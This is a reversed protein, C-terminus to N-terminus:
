RQAFGDGFRQAIEPLPTSDFEHELLIPDGLASSDLPADASNLQALLQEADSALNPLHLAPDLYVHRFTLAPPTRFDDPHERLFAELEAATPEALSAVDNTLFELKQRLRRRIVTDDRDLGMAMAERCYVEERVDDRVLGALEEPSPPRQWTRTFGSALQEIRGQTVVIRNPEVVGAGRDAIRYVLFLGAGLLLFHLLPEKLLRRM